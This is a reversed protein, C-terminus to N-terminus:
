YEIRLLGTRCYSFCLYFARRKVPIATFSYPTLICFRFTVACSILAKTEIYHFCLCMVEGRMHDAGKNKCMCFALKKM